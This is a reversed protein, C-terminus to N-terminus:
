REAGQQRDPRSGTRAGQCHGAEHCANKDGKKTKMPIGPSVEESIQIAWFLWILAFGWRWVNLWPKWWIEGYHSWHISKSFEVYVEKKGVKLFTGYKWKSM